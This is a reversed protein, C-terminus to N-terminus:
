QIFMENLRVNRTSMLSSGNISVSYDSTNAPPNRETLPGKSYVTTSPGTGYATLFILPLKHECEPSM